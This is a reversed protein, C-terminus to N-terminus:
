NSNKLEQIKELIVEEERTLATPLIKIAQEIIELERKTFL